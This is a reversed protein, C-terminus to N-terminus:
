QTPLNFVATTEHTTFRTQKSHFPIPLHSKPRRVSLFYVCGFALLAIIIIPLRRGQSQIMIFLQTRNMPNSGTETRIRGAKPARSAATGCPQNTLSACSIRARQFCVLPCFYVRCFSVLNILLHNHPRIRICYQPTSTHHPLSRYHTAM